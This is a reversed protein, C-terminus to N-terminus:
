SDGLCFYLLFHLGGLVTELWYEIVDEIKLITVTQLFANKFDCLLITQKIYLWQGDQSCWMLKQFETKCSKSLALTLSLSQAASDRRM